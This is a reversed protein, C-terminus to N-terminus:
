YVDIEFHEGCGCIGYISEVILNGILFGDKTLIGLFSGCGKCYILKCITSEM